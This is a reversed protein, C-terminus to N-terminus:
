RPSPTDKVSAYPRLCDIPWLEIREALAVLSGATRPEPKLALATIGHQAAAQLVAVFGAELAALSRRAAAVTRRM